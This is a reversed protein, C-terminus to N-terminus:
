NNPDPDGGDIVGGYGPPVPVYDPEYRANERFVNLRWETQLIQEKLSELVFSSTPPDFVIRSYLYVYTKIMSKMAENLPEATADFYDDWTVGEDEIAFGRLPGIGLQTLKGFAANIYSAVEDDFVTQDVSIGLKIKTSQLISAEM